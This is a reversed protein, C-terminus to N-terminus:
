LTLFWLLFLNVELETASLAAVRLNRLHFNDNPQFKHDSTMIM